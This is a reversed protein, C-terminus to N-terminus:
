HSLPQNPSWPLPDFPHLGGCESGLVDLYRTYYALFGCGMYLRAENAEACSDVVQGANQHRYHVELLHRSVTM